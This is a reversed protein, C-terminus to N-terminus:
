TVSEDARVSFKDTASGNPWLPCSAVIWGFAFQLLSVLDDSGAELDTVDVNGVECLHVNWLVKCWIEVFRELFLGLDSDLIDHRRELQRSSRSEGDNEIRRVVTVFPNSRDLVLSM